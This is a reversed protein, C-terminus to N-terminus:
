SLETVAELNPSKLIKVFCFPLDREALWRDRLFGSASLASEAKVAM